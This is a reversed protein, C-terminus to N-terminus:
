PQTQARRLRVLLDRAPKFSPERVLCEQLARTAGTPDGRAALAVELNYHHRANDPELEM